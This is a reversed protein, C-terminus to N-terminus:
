RFPTIHEQRRLGFIYRVCSNSLRHLQETLQNNIDPYVVSCYDLHSLVLTEVLRKRLAQSTCPKIIKINKSASFFTYSVCDGNHNIIIKDIQLEEFLKVTNPSGLIITQTKGTNLKLRNSEASVAIAKASEYLKLIGQQIRNAPVQVYIQLDDAYLLRFTSADLFDRIDNMYFSFLLPGLVSGQPVGINIDRYESVSKGSAVCVSRGCLYSWFWSLTSKSFGAERLKRFLISPSVNDSAKSFDFQLLITALQRENGM